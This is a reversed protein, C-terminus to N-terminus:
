RELERYAIPDFDAAFLDCRGRMTLLKRTRLHKEYAQLASIVIDTKRTKGSLRKVEAMLDDPLNLTTRM